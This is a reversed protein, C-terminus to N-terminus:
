FLGWSKLDHVLSLLPRKPVKLCSEFADEDLRKIWFPCLIDVRRGAM